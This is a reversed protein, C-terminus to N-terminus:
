NNAFYKNWEKNSIESDDNEDLVDFRVGEFDGDDQKKMVEARDLFGDNNQDMTQFSMAKDDERENLDAFLGLSTVALTAGLIATTFRKM